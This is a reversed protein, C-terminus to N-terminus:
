QPTRKYPGTKYSFAWIQGSILSFYYYPGKYPRKYTIRKTNQKSRIFPCSKTRKYSFPTMKPSERIFPCGLLVIKFFAIKKFYIEWFQFNISPRITSKQTSGVPWATNNEHTWFPSWDVRTRGGFEERGLIKFSKLLIIIVEATQIFGDRRNTPVVSPSIKDHEISLVSVYKPPDSFWVTFDRYVIEPFSETVPNIVHRMAAFDPSLLKELAL